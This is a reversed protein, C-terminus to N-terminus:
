HPISFIGSLDWIYNQILKVCLINGLLVSSDTIFQIVSYTVSHYVPCSWFRMGKHKNTNNNNNNNEELNEKIGARPFFVLRVSASNIEVVLFGFFGGPGDGLLQCVQFTFCPM